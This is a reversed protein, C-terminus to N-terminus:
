YFVVADMDKRHRKRAARAGDDGGFGWPSLDTDAQFREGVLTGIANGDTWDQMEWVWVIAECAHNKEYRAGIYINLEEVLQLAELEAADDEENGPGIDILIIADEVVSVPPHFFDVAAQVIMWNKECTAKLFVCDVWVGAKCIGYDRTRFPDAGYKFLLAVYTYDLYAFEFVYQLCTGRTGRLSWHCLRDNLDGAHQLLLEVEEANCCQLAFGLITWVDGGPDVADGLFYDFPHVKEDRVLQFLREARQKDTFIKHALDIGKFLEPCTVRLDKAGAEPGKM